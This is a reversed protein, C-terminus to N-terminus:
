GKIAGALMTEQIRERFSLYLLIVPLMVIVMGAFLAGWDGQYQQAMSIRAIGLPLTSKEESSILVLALNYENWLGIVNFILAVLLGPKALPLMVRWFTRSHSAGDLAASEMLENPLEQFFGHLVFITFPLSYAVYILILGIRSDYLHLQQALLFLPVITLFQPIMMGISFTSLLLNSGRFPFKALVYAAMASVPILIGLTGLVTLLSNWFYTGFKSKVWAQVYNQFQISEPLAFPESIIKSGTKLSNMVVWLFPLIVVLLVGISALVRLFRTM